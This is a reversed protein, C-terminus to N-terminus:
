ATFCSRSKLKRELIEEIKSVSWNWEEKPQLRQQDRREELYGTLRMLRRLTHAASMFLEESGCHMDGLTRLGDVAAHYLDSHHEAMDEHVLADFSECLICAVTFRDLSERLPLLTTTPVFGNFLSLDGRGTRIEAQGVDFPEPLASFRRKSRKVGKAIVSIKGETETLLRYVCDNEGSPFSRLILAQVHREKAVALIKGPSLVIPHEVLLTYLRM